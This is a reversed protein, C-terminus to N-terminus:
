NGGYVIVSWVLGIVLTGATMKKGAKLGFISLLIGTICGIICLQVVLSDDTNAPQVYQGNRVTQELSAKWGDIWEFFKGRAMEYFWNM